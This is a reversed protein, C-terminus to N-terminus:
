APSCGLPSRSSSASPLLSLLGLPELWADPEAPLGLLGITRSLV